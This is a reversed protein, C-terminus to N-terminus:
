WAEAPISVSRQGQRLRLLFKGAGQDWAFRLETGQSHGNRSWIVKGSATLADIQYDGPEFLQAAIVNGRIMLQAEPIEGPIKLVPTNYSKNLLFDGSGDPALAATPVSIGVPNNPDMISKTGIGFYGRTNMGTQYIKGSATIQSCTLGCHVNVVREGAPSPMKAPLFSQYPLNALENGFNTGWAWVDGNQDLAIARYQDCDMQVIPVNIAVKVPTRQTTKSNTADFAGLTGDYGYGWSWITGATDLALWSQTCSEFQTIKNKLPLKTPSQVTMYEEALLLGFYTNQFFGWVQGSSDLAHASNHNLDASIVKNLGSVQYPTIQFDTANFDPKIIQVSLEDGWAYFSGNPDVFWFHQENFGINTAKYGLNIPQLHFRTGRTTIRPTQTDFLGDGWYYLSDNEGIFIGSANELAVKKAKFNAKTFYLLTDPGLRGTGASGFRNIGTTYVEGLDNVITMMYDNQSISRLAFVSPAIALLLLSLRRM